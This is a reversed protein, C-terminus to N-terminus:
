KIKEVVSQLLDTTMRIDEIVLSLVFRLYREGLYCPPM